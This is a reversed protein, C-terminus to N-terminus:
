NLDGKRQILDFYMRDYKQQAEEIAEEVTLQNLMVATLAVKIPEEWQKGYEGFAYPLVHGEQSSEFITKALESRSNNHNFYDANKLQISSPLSLGASLISNQAKPSTLLEIVKEIAKRNPSDQNIAWGVTFLVNGRKETKPDKPIPVSGYQLNPSKDILYGSLWNGEISVAASETGFCGGTWNQGVDAPLVALNDSLLSVYFEFARKFDRDLITRNNGNIPKWGTSLAFPAFRSFEPLICMGYVGEDGIANVVKALKDKLTFWTDHINPYPTNADDFIDKNFQLVLANVDKAAAYLQDNVTYAQNLVPMLHAVKERLTTGFPALKGTSAWAGVQDANVYFADPANGASLANLIYKPYDSEVAFYKVAIDAKEFDEALVEKILQNTAVIDNGGWGAITVTSKGYAMFTSTAFIFVAYFQISKNIVQQANM